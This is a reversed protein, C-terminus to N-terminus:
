SDFLFLKKFGSIKNRCYFCKNNLKDKCNKCLTHGCPDIFYELKSEMCITCVCPHQISNFSRISDKLCVLEKNVNSIKEKILDLGFADSYEVVKAFLLEKFSYQTLSTKAEVSSVLDVLEQVKESFKNVVEKKESYEQELDNKLTNLKILVKKFSEVTMNLVETSYKIKINNRFEDTIEDSNHINLLINNVADQDGSDSFLSYNLSSYANIEM